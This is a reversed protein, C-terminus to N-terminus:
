CTETRAQRSLRTSARRGQAAVTTVVLESGRPVYNKELVGISSDISPEIAPFFPVRSLTAAAVAPNAAIASGRDFRGLSADGSPLWTPLLQIVGSPGGSSTTGGEVGLAWLGDTPENALPAGTVLLGSAESNFAACVPLPKAKRGERMSEGAAGLWLVGPAVVTVPPPPMPATLRRVVVDFRVVGTRLGSRDFIAVAGVVVPEGVVDCPEGALLMPDFTAPLRLKEANLAAADM